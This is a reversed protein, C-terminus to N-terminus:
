SQATGTGTRDTDAEPRPRTGTETVPATERETEPAAYSPPRWGTGRAWADMRPAAYDTFWGEKDAAYGATSKDVGHLKAVRRKEALYDARAAAPSSM